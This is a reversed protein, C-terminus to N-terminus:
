AQQGDGGKRGARLFYLLWLAATAAAFAFRGPTNAILQRFGGEILGAVFLMLVAGGALGAAARGRLALNELRSYQGPFLITRAIEFGGAGCLIIAGFETVGHISVWGLFDILVGRNYHLAVFAGFVMGQYALLVLTPAGGAVGLAFALIGITANHRFLFNAFVVFSQVFGPWPAFIESDLLEAATSAPSRGGAMSEPALASFWDESSEVLTFGVAVGVLIAAFALLIAGRARRVEAPFGRTLFAGFSELLGVRPGYVVFYARLALGELYLLLNRDLVISRAVSLSSVATRYLRPLRRLEAASLSAVGRAEAKAILADLDTWAAQRGKRFEASRLTLVPLPAAAEPAQATEASV